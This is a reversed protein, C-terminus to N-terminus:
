RVNQIAEWTGEGWDAEMAKLLHPVALARFSDADPTIINVGKEALTKKLEEEQKTVEANNWAIGNAVAQMIISQDESSIKKWAAENIFIMNACIIHGTLIINKQIEYFKQSYFTTLPNEQGDVMHTQLSLYLDGLTIPIPKAGWGAAMEMYSKVEPVRIKLGQIDNVTRIDARGTSLQRTGYYFAGLIRVNKQLFEENLRAGFEGNLTKHLHEVNRYIYPAEAISAVPIWTAFQSPGETIIEVIGAQVGETLDRSGGLAGNPFGQIEVRGGLQPNAEAIIRRMMQTTITSEAHNSGWRLIIKQSANGGTKFLLTAALIAALVAFTILSTIKIRATM